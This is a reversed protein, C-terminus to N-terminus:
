STCNEKGVAEADRGDEVWAVLYKELLETWGQVYNQRVEPDRYGFCFHSLKLVTSKQDASDELVYSYKSHGPGAMGLGGELVIKKGREIRTITGWHEGEGDGWREVFQGGVVPELALESAMGEPAVHYAWWKGIETTLAKYVRARDARLTIEQEIHFALNDTEKNMDQEGEIITELNLLSTASAEAYRNVWRAYVRQIPIANLHNFRKRGERRVLLLNAEELLDLHKMVGFRTMDRDFHASLDGTTHPGGRLLDLIQRRVPHSLAEFVRNEAM